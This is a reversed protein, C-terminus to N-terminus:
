QDEMTLFVRNFFTTFYILLVITVVNIFGPFCHAGAPIFSINLM